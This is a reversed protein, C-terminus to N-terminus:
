FSFQANWAVVGGMLAISMYQVPKVAYPKNKFLWAVYAAHVAGFAIKALAMKTMDPQEGWLFNKEVCTGRDLCNKTLVWDLANFVQFIVELRIAEAKTVIPERHESTDSVSQPTEEPLTAGVSPTAEARAFLADLDKLDDRDISLLLESNDSVSIAVTVEREIEAFAIAADQASAGSPFAFAAGTLGMAMTWRWQFFRAM